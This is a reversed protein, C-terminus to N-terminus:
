HPREGLTTAHYMLRHQKMDYDYNARHFTSRNDWMFIDHLRWTHSYTFEPRVAKDLLDLLLDQSEEPDMGVINEVRAADFWLSKEGTGDIARVLPHINPVQGGQQMIRVNDANVPVKVKSGARVNVTKMGELKKRLDEPLARFAARMNTVDTNGGGDPIEVAYLMTYAPPRERYSGDSHWRNASRIYSGGADLNHNSYRQIQPLGPFSFKPHDQDMLEGFIRAVKEFEEPTLHQDRIVMCTNELMAQNLRRSTEADVHRLDVGTVECGIHPSIKRIQMTSSTTTM